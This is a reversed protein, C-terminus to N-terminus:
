VKKLEEIEKKIVAIEKRLAIWVIKSFTMGYFKAVEKAEEIVDNGLYCSINRGNKVNKVNKVNKM